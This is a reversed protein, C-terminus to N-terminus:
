KYLGEQVGSVLREGAGVAAETKAIEDEINRGIIIIM